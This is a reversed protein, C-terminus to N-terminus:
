LRYDSALVDSLEEYAFTVEQPGAAYPAVQYPQFYFVIENEGLFFSNFNEKRPEIGEEFISPLTEELQAKSKESLVQLYDSEQSFVDTLTIETGSPRVYNKGITQTIGHAGGTYEYITFAFSAQDETVYVRNFGGHLEFRHMPGSDDEPIGEQFTNIHTNIFSEIAKNVDTDATKPYSLQINTSTASEQIYQTQFVVKDHDFLGNSIGLMIGAGILGGILAAIFSAISRRSLRHMIDTYIGSM